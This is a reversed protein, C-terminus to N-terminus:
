LIGNTAPDPPSYRSKLLISPAASSPAREVPAVQDPSFYNTYSPATSLLTTTRKIIMDKQWRDNYSITVTVHM